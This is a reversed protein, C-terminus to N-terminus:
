GGPFGSSQDLAPVCKGQVKIMQFSPFHDKNNDSSFSESFATFQQEILGSKSVDGENM